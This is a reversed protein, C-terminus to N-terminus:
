FIKSVEKKIYELAIKTPPEEESMKRLIAERM